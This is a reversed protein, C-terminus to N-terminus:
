NVLPVTAVMADRSFTSATVIVGPDAQQGHLGGTFAPRSVPDQTYKAQRVASVARAMERAHCCEAGSAALQACASLIRVVSVFSQHQVLEARDGDQRTVPVSEYFSEAAKAFRRQSDTAATEAGQLFDRGAKLAQYQEFASRPDTLAQTLLQFDVLAGDSQMLGIATLRNGDPGSTFMQRVEDPTWHKSRALQRAELMKQELLDTRAWGSPMESRLSEFGRSVRDATALIARAEDRLRDAAATDGRSEALEAELLKTRAQRRLGVKIGAAEISEIKDSFLSLGLLVAGVTILAAAGSSNTTRFVAYAGLSFSVMGVVGVLVPGTM